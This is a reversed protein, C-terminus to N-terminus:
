LLIGLRLSLRKYTLRQERRLSSFNSNYTFEAKQFKYGFDLTYKEKNEGFRIGLSPYAMVGGKAEIIGYNENAFAFSYGTQINFFLSNHKPMFFSSYEVFLPIVVEGSEILYKDYGLGVGVAALRSFKKGVSFSFGFGLNDGGREGGNPAIALLRGAYYIGEEKFNYPKGKKIASLSSKQMIKDVTKTPLVLNDNWKTKVKITDLIDWELIEAEFISGTKLKIIYMDEEASSDAKQSYASISIILLSLILFILQRM